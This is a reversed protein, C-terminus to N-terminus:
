KIGGERVDPSFITYRKHNTHGHYHKPADQEERVRIGYGFVVGAFFAAVVAIAIAIIVDVSM